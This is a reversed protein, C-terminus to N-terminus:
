VNLGPATSCREETVSMEKIMIRYESDYAPCIDSGVKVIILGTGAESALIGTKMVARTGKITGGIRGVIKEPGFSVCINGVSVEGSADDNLFWVETELYEDSSWMFKRFRLSLMAPRLSEKVAYYSPKPELRWDIVSTGAAVPWCENFCWSLAMSTKPQNRRSEEFVAKLGEAQLLRSREAMLAYTESQGFYREIVEPMAWATPTFAAYAHHSVWAGSDFGSARENEPIIEDIVEERALSPCAFEPYATNDSRNILEFIDEGTTEDYFLYSGHAMGDLPSTAIFPTHRDYEYCNRNLIRLAFSQETMGSWKNFLENGGCWIVHCPHRKVRRIIAASEKDLVNLYADDDPYNNCALPFEQWVMLGLEDCIDYFVDKNVNGGGWVRIMNFNANRALELLKRYRDEDVTGYFIDAPIWNSGKCFIEKGNIRVLAPSYSRGKPMRDPHEWAGDHMVLRVTRFGTRMEITDTKGSDAAKVIVRIDYRNQNGYGAPWWLEPNRIVGNATYSLDDTTRMDDLNKKACFAVEGTDDVIDVEYGSIPLSVNFKVSFEVASNDQDLRYDFQLDYVFTKSRTELYIDDWIGLPILRPHFDWGYSVPPKCSRDAQHRGAPKAVSKPAPYVIIRLESNFGASGSGTSGTFESLDLEFPTYMGEHSYITISDVLIDYKYDIGKGCLYVRDDAERTLDLDAKYIWFVDEMWSYQKFNDGIYHPPWEHAKAWDLQVAGPVTAPVFEEPEVEPSTSWGVVFKPRHPRHPRLNEVGTGMPKGISESKSKTSM